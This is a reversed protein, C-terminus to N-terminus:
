QGLGDRLLRLRDLRSLSSSSSSSFISSSEKGKTKELHEAFDVLQRLIVKDDLFSSSELASLMDVKALLSKWEKQLKSDNNDKIKSASIQEAATAGGSPSLSTPALLRYKATIYPLLSPDTRTSPPAVAATGMSIIEILEIRCWAICQLRIRRTSGGDLTPIQSESASIVTCVVGLDGPELIPVIPGSGKSLIHPKETSPVAGILSPFTRNNTTTPTTLTFQEALQLYREEYLNLVLDESPLLVRKQLPFIPIASQCQRSVLLPHSTSTTMIAASEVMRLCLMYGAGVM